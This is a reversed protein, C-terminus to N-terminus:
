DKWRKLQDGHRREKELKDRPVKAEFLHKSRKATFSCEKVRKDLSM